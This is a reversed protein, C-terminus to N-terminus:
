EKVRMRWWFWLRDITKVKIRKFLPMKNWDEYAKRLSDSTVGSTDLKFKM